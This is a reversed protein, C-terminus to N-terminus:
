ISAGLVSGNMQSPETNLKGERSELPDGEADRSVVGFLLLGTPDIAHGFAEVVDADRDFSAAAGVVDPEWPVAALVQERFQSRDLAGLVDDLGEVVDACAPWDFEGDLLLGEEVTHQVVSSECAAELLQGSAEKLKTVREAIFDGVGFRASVRLAAAAAPVALLGLERVRGASLWERARRM